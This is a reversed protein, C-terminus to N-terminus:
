GFQDAMSHDLTLGERGTRGDAQWSCGATKITVKLLNSLSETGLNRVQLVSIIISDVERFLTLNFSVTYVCHEAYHSACLLFKM